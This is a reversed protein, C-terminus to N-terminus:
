GQELKLHILLVGGDVLNKPHGVAPHGDECCADLLSTKSGSIPRPMNCACSIVWQVSPPVDLAGRPGYHVGQGVDVPIRHPRHM